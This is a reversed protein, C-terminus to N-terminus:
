SIYIITYYHLLIFFLTLFYNVILKHQLQNLYSYSTLFQSLLIIHSYLILTYHLLIHDFYLKLFIYNHM